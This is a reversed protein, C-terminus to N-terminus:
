VVIEFSSYKSSEFPKIKLDKIEFYESKTVPLKDGLKIQPSHYATIIGEGCPQMSSFYKQAFLNDNYKSVVKQADEISEDKFPRYIFSNKYVTDGVKREHYTEPKSNLPGQFLGKFSVTNVNM